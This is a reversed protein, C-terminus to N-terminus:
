RATSELPPTPARIVKSATRARLAQALLRDHGYLDAFFHPRGQRVLATGYAVLVPVPQALRLTRSTGNEMAERIRAETWEPQDRLVFKALAVPEEVRICGHSFDRRDRGFLQTSPTHHLYIADNNPFVFKIDGLANAPGPRQRIRAEGRLVADLLGADLDTAVQGGRTVFEFGERTWYAPDRRLRPVTEETAISLPVNWYPSFEIFRLEESILPTRTELARGVIVKMELQVDFREGRVEYARLVFEPVNVVIMRPGQALPTWRLREMTLAIQQARQAPTVELAARTARGVVGDAALGHRQQFARLADVLAGDYAAGPAVDAPLDGLAQLRQTMLPLGAWAQGPELKGSSGGPLAPLKAQWAPHAGLARYEALAARLSAYVQLQPAAARVSENLRQTALAANLAGAADFTRRPMSFKVHVQRPDIRGRHLDTLFRQVATTLAADLRARAAADPVSGADAAALARGLTAVGYDAPELGDAAADALLAVAERAQASPRDGDFWSLAQAGAIGPALAIAVVIALASGARPWM